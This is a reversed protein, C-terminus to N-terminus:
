FSSRSSSISNMLRASLLLSETLEDVEGSDGLVKLGSTTEFGGGILTLVEEWEIVMMM